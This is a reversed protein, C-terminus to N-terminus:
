MTSDAIPNFKLDKKKEDQILARDIPGWAGM